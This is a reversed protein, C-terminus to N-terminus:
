GLPSLKLKDEDTYSDGPTLKGGSLALKIEDTIMLDEFYTGKVADLRKKGNEPSIIPAKAKILKALFTKDTGIKLMQLFDSESFHDNKLLSASSLNNKGFMEELGESVGSPSLASSTSGYKDLLFDRVHKGVSVDDPNLNGNILDVLDKGLQGYTLMPAGYINATAWFIEGTDPDAASPGYGLPSAAQAEPIWYILSYRSDGIKKMKDYGPVFEKCPDYVVNGDADEKQLKADFGGDKDGDYINQCLVYIEPLSDYIEQWRKYDDATLEPKWGVCRGHQEFRYCTLDTRDGKFIVTLRALFPDKWQPDKQVKPVVGMYGSNEGFLLEADRRGGNIAVQLAKDEQSAHIFRIGIIESLLASARLLKNDKTLIFLSVSNKELTVGARSAIENGGSKVSFTAGTVSDILAYVPAQNNLDYAVDKVPDTGNGVVLDATPVDPNLNLFRVAAKNNLKNPYDSDIVEVFKPDSGSGLFIVSKASDRKVNANSSVFLCFGNECKHATSACPNDNSCAINEKFKLEVDKDIVAHSACDSNSECSRTQYQGYIYGMEEWFYLWAVTDKFSKNWENVAEYSEDYLFEPVESSLHYIVPKIGRQTYPKSVRKVCDGEVFWDAAKCFEGKLRDCGTDDLDKFCKKTIPQGNEDTLALDDKSQKWINWRNILSHKGSYINGFEPDYVYRETLFFGFNAMQEENHYRLPEYDNNPNAKRFSHRFKIVAGVCSGTSVRYIDCTGFSEPEAFSKTVVDIYSESIFPADPNETEFTQVYYDVPTHKVVRAMFTFDEVSNKAWNVRIYKRKWWKNDLTNEELVNTQEGTQPN